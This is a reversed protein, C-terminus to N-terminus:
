VTDEDVFREQFNNVSTEASQLKSFEAIHMLAEGENVVPIQTAGIIIGASPARVQRLESDFPGALTCLVEGEAVRRGLPVRSVVMGDCDARVWYSRRVQVPKISPQKEATTRPKQNAPLMNLARMVRQIGRVGAKIAASDLRLAEGAEYLILPVGQDAACARFSGDRTKSDIIVPVGFAEAMSLTTENDLDARIQPLNTRHIAGTHLDIVHTAVSLLETRIIYALRGGLSGNAWGPFCRNLDRRDPLYRSQQIYGLINVVPVLLLTGRLNQLLKRKALQRCIEVGNLEDGHIAATVLLVPGPRRGHIVHVVLDVPTNTYLRVAPIKVQKRQGAAVREGALVFDERKSM